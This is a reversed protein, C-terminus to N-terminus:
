ANAVQVPSIEIGKLDGVRIQYYKPLDSRNKHAPNLYVPDTRSFEDYRVVDGIEVPISVQLGGVVMFQGTAVVVGRDSVEKINSNDLAIEFGEPQEYYDAIPIEQVIVRDLIPKIPFSM